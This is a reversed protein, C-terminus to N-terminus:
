RMAPQIASPLVLWRAGASHRRRVSACSRAAALAPDGDDDDADDDAADGDVGDSSVAESSADAGSATGTSGGRRRTSGDLADRRLRRDSATNANALAAMTATVRATMTIRPSWFVTLIARPDSGTALGSTPAGGGAVPGETAGSAPGETSGDTSGDVAMRGGELASEIAM